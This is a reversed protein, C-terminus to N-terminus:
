CRGQSVVTDHFKNSLVKAVMGISGKVHTFSLKGAKADKVAM